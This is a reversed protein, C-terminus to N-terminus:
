NNGSNARLINVLATVDALTVSGDGTIDCTTPDAGGYIIESVLVELDEANVYGDNNVDGSATAEQKVFLYADKQTNKYCVFRPNGSNYNYQVYRTDSQATTKLRFGGDTEDIAWQSTALTPDTAANLNNNNSTLSLYKGNDSALLTWANTTGGLTLVAVEEKKLSVKDGSLNVRVATRLNSTTAVGMAVASDPVVLIYEKGAVLQSASTVRTFTTSPIETVVEVTYTASGAFYETTAAWSVTITATGVAVGTVNGNQDVTAVNTNNSAYTFALSGPANIANTFVEGIEITATPHGFSVEADTQTASTVIIQNQSWVAIQKASNYLAPHAVVDVTANVTVSLTESSNQARLTITNGNQEITANNSSFASTVTADAIKVYCSLYRNFNATLDAITLETPTVTNGTTKTYGEVLTFAKIEPLNYYTTYNTVQMIGTIKDGVALDGKCEHLFIGGTADEMYASTGAVYTVIANNLQVYANVGGAVLAAFGNKVENKTFTKSAVLSPTKGSAVAIAKVTTTATLTFPTTYQTSNETPDTGDLTYYVIGEAATITVTTTTLFSTEGSIVPAETLANNRVLSVLQNDAAFEYTSGYKTLNGYVVVSDGVKIDDASTFNAGNYSKGRYAQLQSGSETGDASINYSINGHQSSFATVIKSVIGTAYVGTVGTGADIAAIAQAVTYPNAASTGPGNPDTVTITYSVECPLYDNDGNFTFTITTIGAGVITVAGTTADVTAVATNSSEWSSNGDLEADNPNYLEPATFTDGLNLAVASESFSIESDERTEGSPLAEATVGWVVFRKGSSATFTLETSATLASSFTIVKYYNTSSADGSFTFPTNGSIGSNATLSINDSYGTPTVKLTVSEGNWGAVHMHLYKTNAPVTVVIAGAVSSTGAKIGNYQTNNISVKCDSTKTGGATSLTVNGTYNTSNDTQAWASVGLMMCLMLLLSKFHLKNIM